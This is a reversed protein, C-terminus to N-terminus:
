CPYKSPDHDTYLANHLKPTADYSSCIALILASFERASKAVATYKTQSDPSEMQHKIRELRNQFSVLTCESKALDSEFQQIECYSWLAPNKRSLKLIRILELLGYRNSVGLFAGYHSLLSASLHMFCEKASQNFLAPNTVLEPHAIFRFHHQAKDINYDTVADKTQRNVIWPHPPQLVIDQLLNLLTKYRISYLNLTRVFKLIERSM